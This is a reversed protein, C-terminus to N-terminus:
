IPRVHIGNELMHKKVNAITEPQVLIDKFGGYGSKLFEINGSDIQNGMRLRPENYSMYHSDVPQAYYYHFISAAAVADAKGETVVRVFDDKCSAGCCAIVPVSVSSAVTQILSLDFGEGSGDKDISSLIIEGAGLDVVQQAWDLVDINTPERGYDVWVKYKGDNHLKAEISSVICQSGFRDSAKKILEPSHVAETNIAIKDAGARLLNKIDDISRIGGAVTLPIFISEATKKVIEMLTNRFYLSAVVDQFFLEDAGENYYIQSFSESTGLARYGDFCLGKILNGGKIDLRPIIRIHKKM